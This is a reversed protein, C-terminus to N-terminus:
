SREKTSDSPRSRRKKIDAESLQGEYHITRLIAIVRPISFLDDWWERTAFAPRSLEAVVDYMRESEGDLATEIDEEDGLAEIRENLVALYLSTGRGPPDFPMAEGHIPVEIPNDALQREIREQLTVAEDFEARRETSESAAKERAALAADMNQYNPTTASM